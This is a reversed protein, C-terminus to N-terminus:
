PVLKHMVFAHFTKHFAVPDGFQLIMSSLFPTCVFFTSAREEFEIYM